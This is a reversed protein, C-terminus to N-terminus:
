IYINYNDYCRMTYTIWFHRAFDFYHPVKISYEMKTWMQGNKGIKGFGIM